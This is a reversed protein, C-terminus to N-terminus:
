VRTALVIGSAWTLKTIQLESRSLLLALLGAVKIEHGPPWTRQSDMDDIVYIGGRKLLSLALGLNDYKGAWTDAFILDFTRGQAERLFVNGDASVFTVRADLGLHRQAISLLRDDNEV